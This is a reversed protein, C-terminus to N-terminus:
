KSSSATTTTTSTSSGGNDAAIVALATVGAVVGITAGTTLGLANVKAANDAVTGVKVADAAVAQGALVMLFAAAFKKM